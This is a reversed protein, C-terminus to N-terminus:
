APSPEEVGGRADYAPRGGVLTLEVRGAVEMGHYPTNRGKSVFRGSDVTWQRHPDIVCVDAPAGPALTGGPLAFTRAPNWTMRRILWAPELNREAVLRTLLVPLATEFGVIGNAAEDFPINKDDAAHPAHDTAILDITGDDLGRILEGIDEDSRLPPAMKANTGCRVTDAKTLTLHHPCVEATM